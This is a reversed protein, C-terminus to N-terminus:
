REWFISNALWHLFRVSLLRSGLILIIGNGAPVIIALREDVDGHERVAGAHHSAFGGQPRGIAVNDLNSSRL